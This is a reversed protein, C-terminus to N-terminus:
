LTPLIELVFHGGDNSHPVYAGPKFTLHNEHAFGFLALDKGNTFKSVRMIWPRGDEDYVVLVGNNRSTTLPQGRNVLILSSAVTETTGFACFFGLDLLKSAILNTGM